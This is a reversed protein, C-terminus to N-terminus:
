AEELLSKFTQLAKFDHFYCPLAERKIEVPRVEEMEEIKNQDAGFLKKILRKVGSAAKEEDRKAKIRHYESEPLIYQKELWLKLKKLLFNFDGEYLDNIEGPTKGQYMKYLWARENPGFDEFNLDPHTFLKVDAGPFARLLQAREELYQECENFIQENSLMISRKSIYTEEKFSVEGHRWSTLVLISTLPDLQRYAAHIIQGNNLEIRGNREGWNFNLIGSNKEKCLARLLEVGDIYDLSGRFLCRDNEPNPAYFHCYANLIHELEQRTVPWPVIEKVGLQWILQRQGQDLKGTSCIIPVNLGNGTLEALGRELIEADKEVIYILHWDEFEIRKLFDGTNEFWRFSIPLRPIRTILQDFWNKERAVVAVHIM